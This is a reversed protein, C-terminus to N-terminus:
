RWKASSVANLAVSLRLVRRGAHIEIPTSM